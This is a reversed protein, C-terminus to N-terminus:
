ARAKSTKRTSTTEVVDDLISAAMPKSVIKTNVEKAGATTELIVELADQKLDSGAGFLASKSRAADTGAHHDTYEIVANLLNYATGRIEPFANKDNSEFLGAIEALKNERITAHAQAAASRAEVEVKSPPYLADLVALFTKKDLKRQALINLKQELSQVQGTVSSMLKRAGDLKGKTNGFHGVRCYTGGERLAMDLTNHCVVREEVIKAIASGKGDHRTTFLLYIKHLDKGLILMEQPIKVLTWIMKGGDLCGAAEYHAGGVAEVLADSFDFAEHNQIVKYFDTVVGLMVDDTKRFIGYADVPRIDKATKAWSLQRKEVLWDQGAAHLMEKATLLGSVVTSSTGELDWWPAKNSGFAAHAKGNEIWVNHAM